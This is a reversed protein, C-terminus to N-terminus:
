IGGGGSGSGFEAYDHPTRSMERVHVATAEYGDSGAGSRQPSDSVTARNDRLRTPTDARKLYDTLALALEVVFVPRGGVRRRQV